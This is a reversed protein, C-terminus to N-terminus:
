KKGLQKAVIKSITEELVSTETKKQEAL